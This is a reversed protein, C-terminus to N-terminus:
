AGLWTMGDSWGSIVIDIETAPLKDRAVKTLSTLAFLSSSPRFTAISQTINKLLTKTLSTSKRKEFVAETEPPEEEMEFSVETQLNLLVFDDSSIASQIAKSDEM